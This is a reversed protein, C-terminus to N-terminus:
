RSRRHFEKMQRVLEDCIEKKQAATANRVFQRGGDIMAAKRAAQSKNPKIGPGKLAEQMGDWALGAMEEGFQRIASPLLERAIKQYDEESEVGKLDIVGLDFRM